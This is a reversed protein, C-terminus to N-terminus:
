PLGLVCSGYGMWALEAPALSKSSVKKFLAQEQGQPSLTLFWTTGAPYFYRNIPVRRGGGSWHGIAIPEGCVTGLVEVQLDLREKLRQALSEPAEFPQPTLAVLSLLANKNPLMQNSGKNQGKKGKKGRVAPMLRRSLLRRDDPALDRLRQLAAMRGDGGLPLIDPLDLDAYAEGLQLYILLAHEELRVHTTNYLNGPVAQRRRPDLAIGVHSQYGQPPPTFPGGLAQKLKSDRFTGQLKTWAAARQFLYANLTEVSLWAGECSRFQKKLDPHCSEQPMLRAVFDGRDNKITTKMEAKSSPPGFHGFLPDDERELYALTAPAPLFLGERDTECLFPGQLIMPPPATWDAPGDLFARLGLLRPSGAGDVAEVARLLAAALAGALTAPPPPFRSRAVSLSEDTQEFPQGDRFFLTDCPVIRYTRIIM